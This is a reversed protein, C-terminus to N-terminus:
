CAFSQVLDLVCAKRVTTARYSIVVTLAYHVSVFEHPRAISKQENRFRKYSRGLITIITIAFIRWISEVVIDRLKSYIVYSLYLDIISPHM